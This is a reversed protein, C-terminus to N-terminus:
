CNSIITRILSERNTLCPSYAVLQTSVKAHFQKSESRQFVEIPLCELIIVIMYKM